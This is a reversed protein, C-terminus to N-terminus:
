NKVKLFLLVTQRIKTTKFGYILPNMIPPIILFEISFFNQLTQSTDKSGFRMHMLDFLVAVLFTILSVFHPVCTQMFKNRSELSNICSKMLFMYTGFIYFGHFVYFFITLYSVISNVTTDASPCALTVIIWNGCFLRDINSSCLKLRSTLIINVSVICFTSICSFCVLSLIKQKTMISHYQLPRCIALYRDYAMVALISLDCGAFSNLVLAQFVCGAYSIVHVPSLVYSLFHPYFGTAGFLGNLFFVCLLIYMPEHLSRDLVITVIIAVNVLLIVCYCLLTLSFLVIRHNMTENLASVTLLNIISVNSMM